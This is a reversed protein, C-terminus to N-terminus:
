KPEVAVVDHNPMACPDAFPDAVMTLDPPSPNPVLSPVLYPCPCPVHGQVHPHHLLQFPHDSAVNPSAGITVAEVLLHILHHGTPHDTNCAEM